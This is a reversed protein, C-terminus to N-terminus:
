KGQRSLEQALHKAILSAFGELVDDHVPTAHNLVIGVVDDVITDPDVGTFWAASIRHKASPVGSSKSNVILTIMNIIRTDDSIQADDLSATFDVDDVHSVAEICGEVIQSAQAETLM